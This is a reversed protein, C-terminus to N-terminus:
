KIIIFGLNEIPALLGHFKSSLEHSSAGWKEKSILRFFLWFKIIDTNQEFVRIKTGSHQFHVRLPGSKLIKGLPMGRFGQYSEANV